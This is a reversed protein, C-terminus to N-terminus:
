LMCRRFWVCPSPVYGLAERGDSNLAPHNPFTRPLDKEIQSVTHKFQQLKRERSSPMDPSPLADDADHAQVAGSSSAHLKEYQGPERREQVRLFIQPAM